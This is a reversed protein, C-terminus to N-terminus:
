GKETTVICLERVPYKRYEPHDPAAYILSGNDITGSWSSIITTNRSLGQLVKLPDQKLHTDFLMEINDLIVLDISASSVVEGLLKPLQLTRQRETLELMRRSLELNVNIMPANTQRQVEKLEMTKGSDVQDVLLILRYYLTAVEQIKKIIQSSLPEAM